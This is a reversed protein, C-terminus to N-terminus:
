SWELRPQMADAVQKFSLMAMYHRVLECQYPGEWDANARQGHPDRHEQIKCCQEDTLAYCQDRSPLPLNSPTMTSASQINTVRTPETDCGGLSAISSAKMMTDTANTATEKREYLDPTVQVTEVGPIIQTIDDM